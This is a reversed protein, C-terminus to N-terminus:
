GRAPTQVVKQRPGDRPNCVFSRVVLIFEYLQRSSSIVILSTRNGSSREAPSIEAAYHFLISFFVISRGDWSGGLRDFFLIVGDRRARLVSYYYINNNRPPLRPARHNVPRPLCGESGRRARPAMINFPRGRPGDLRRGTLRDNIMPLGVAGSGDVAVRKIQVWNTPLRAIRLPRGNTVRRTNKKVRHFEDRMLPGNSLSAILITCNTIKYTLM